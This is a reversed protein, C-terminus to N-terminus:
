ENGALLKEFLPRFNAIANARHSIQNKQTNELQAATKDMDPIYFIPDYGFGNNGVPGHNIIGEIKGSTEILIDDPSALSVSCVFRASREEEPVDQMQRLVKEYNCRDIDHRDSSSSCEDVAYRASYIGPEGHLADIVLGSDDAITWLGTAKAYEVAKKRANEAFTDGDEVVEPMDPVDKLSLWEIETGVNALLESLEKLKGPNTTAVLIKM